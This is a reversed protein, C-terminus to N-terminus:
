RHLLIEKEYEKIKILVLIIIVKIRIVEIWRMIVIQFNCEKEGYM